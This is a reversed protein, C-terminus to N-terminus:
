RMRLWYAFANEAHTWDETLAIIEYDKGNRIMRRFAVCDELTKFGRQFEVPREGCESM